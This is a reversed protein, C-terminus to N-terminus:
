VYSVGSHIAPINAKLQCWEKIDTFKWNLVSEQSDYGDVVLVWVQTSTFGLIGQLKETFINAPVQVVASVQSAETPPNEGVRTSYEGTAPM